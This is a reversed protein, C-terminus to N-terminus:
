DELSDLLERLFDKEEQYHKILIRMHTVLPNAPDYNAIAIQSNYFEQEREIHAMRAGIKEKM